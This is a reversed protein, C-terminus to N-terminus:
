NTRRSRRRVLIFVASLSLVAFLAPWLWPPITRATTELKTSAPPTEVNGMRDIAQVQFVHSGPPVRLTASRAPSPLSWKRNDIRWRYHLESAPTAQWADQGQWQVTATYGSVRPEEIKTRPADHDTLSLTALGKGLTGIRLQDGDVLLPWVPTDLLFESWRLGDYRLVGTTTAFWLVGPPGEAISWTPSKVQPFHETRGQSLRSVGATRQYGIWISDDRAAHLTFVRKGKLGDKFREINGHGRYVAVGNKTAFWLAGSRDRAVVDYVRAGPVALRFEGNDRVWAGGGADGDGLGAFWLAGSRDLAIRHVFADIGPVSQWSGSRSRRYVGRFSSGSGIWLAGNRDCALATVVGLKRGGIRRVRRGGHRWVGDDTACWLNGDLDKALAHLRLPGDAAQFTVGRTAFLRGDRTEYSIGRFRAQPLAPAATEWAAALTGSVDGDTLKVGEPTKALVAAGSRRLDCPGSFVRRLRYKELVFVGSDAAIWLRDETALLGRVPSDPGLFPDWANATGTALLITLLIRVRM